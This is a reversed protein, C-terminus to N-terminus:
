RRTLPAVTPGRAPHHRSLQRSVITSEHLGCHLVLIAPAEVDGPRARGLPGGDTAEAVARHGAGVFLDSAACFTTLMTQEVM